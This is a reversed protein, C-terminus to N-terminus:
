FFRNSVSGAIITLLGLSAVAFGGLAMNGYFRANDRAVVFPSSAYNGLGEDSTAKWLDWLEASSMNDIEDAYADIIEQPPPAIVNNTRYLLGIGGFSLGGFIMFAGIAFAIGAAVNWQGGPRAPEREHPGEYPELARIGRM